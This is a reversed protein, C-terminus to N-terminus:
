SGSAVQRRFLGLAVAKLMQPNKRLRRQSYARWEPGYPVYVRVPLGDNLWGQWLVERVGLLVEFDYQERPIGAQKVHEMLEQAMFEDHTAIAIFHGADWL